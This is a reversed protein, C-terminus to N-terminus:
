FIRCNLSFAPTDGPSWCPNFISRMASKEFKWSQPLFFYVLSASSMSRTEFNFSWFRRLDVRGSVFLEGGFTLLQFSSGKRKPFGMRLPSESGGFLQQQWFFPTSAGGFFSRKKQPQSPIKRKMEKTFIEPSYGSGKTEVRDVDIGVSGPLRTVPWSSRIRWPRM